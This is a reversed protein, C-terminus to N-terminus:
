LARIDGCAACRAVASVNTQKNVSLGVDARVLSPLFYYQLTFWFDLGPSQWDM